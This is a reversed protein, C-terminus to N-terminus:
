RFYKANSYFLDDQNPWYGPIGLIPFPHFKDTSFAIKNRWTEAVTSDLLSNKNNNIENLLDADNVLLCHCTMGIYPNLAKEFIAHGFIVCKIDTVFQERHNIFLEIWQHNRILELIKENNSVIIAGCEDFQTLRNELLTRNTKIQRNSSQSYHLQNLIKKTKPFKLWINANFFDHWNSTRTQLENKLYVRPEYQDEYSLFQKAQSVPKIPSNLQEFIVSYDKITPWKTFNEFLDITPKLQKIIPSTYFISTSWQNLDKISTTEQTNM